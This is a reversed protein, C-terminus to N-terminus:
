TSRRRCATATRAARSRRSSSRPCTRATARSPSRTPSRARAAATGAGAHSAVPSARRVVDRRHRLWIPSAAVSWVDPFLIVAAKSQAGTEYFDVGDIAKKSGSNAPKAALYPLATPPCCSMKTPQATATKNNKSNCSGITATRPKCRHTAAAIHDIQTTAIGSLRRAQEVLTRGPQRWASSLHM